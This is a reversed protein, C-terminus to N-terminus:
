LDHGCEDCKLDDPQCIEGCTPCAKPSESANEERLERQLRRELKARGRESKSLKM